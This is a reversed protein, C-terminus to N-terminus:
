NRYAMGKECEPNVEQRNNRCGSGLTLMERAIDQGEVANQSATCCKVPIVDMSEKVKAYKCGPSNVKEDPMMLAMAWDPNVIRTACEVVSEQRLSDMGKQYKEERGQIQYYNSRGVLLMM